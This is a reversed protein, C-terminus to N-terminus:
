IWGKENAYSTYAKLIYKVDESTLSFKKKIYEAESYYLGFQAENIKMHHIAGDINDGTGNKSRKIAEEIEKYDLKFSQKRMQKEKEEEYGDLEEIMKGVEKFLSDFAELTDTLLDKEKAM